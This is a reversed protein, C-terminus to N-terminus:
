SLGGNELHYRCMGAPCRACCRKCMHRPCLLAFHNSLCTGCLQGARAAGQAGPAKPVFTGNAIANQHRIARDVHAQHWATGPAHWGGKVYWTNNSVWSRSAGMPAIDGKGGKGGGHGHDFWGKGGQEGGKGGARAWQGGAAPPAKAGARWRAWPPTVSRRAAPSAAARQAADGRVARAPQGAGFGKPSPVGRPSPQRGPGAGQPGVSPARAGGRQPM